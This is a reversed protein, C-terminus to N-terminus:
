TAGESRNRKPIKLVVVFAGDEFWPFLISQHGLKKLRDVVWQRGAWIVPPKFTEIIELAKREALLDDTDTDTEDCVSIHFGITDSAIAGNVDLMVSFMDRFKEIDVGPRFVLTKFEDFKMRRVGLLATLTRSASIM